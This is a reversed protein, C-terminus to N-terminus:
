AHTLRLLTVQRYSIYDNNRDQVDHVIFGYSSLVNGIQPLLKLDCTDIFDPAPVPFVSFAVQKGGFRGYPITIYVENFRSWDTELPNIARM